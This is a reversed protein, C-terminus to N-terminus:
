VKEPRLGAEGKHAIRESAGQAKPQDYIPIIKVIEAKRYSTQNLVVYASSGYLIESVWDGPMTYEPVQVIEELVEDNTGQIIMKLKEIRAV